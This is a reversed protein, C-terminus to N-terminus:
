KYFQILFSKKNKISYLIINGKINILRNLDKDFIKYYLYDVNENLFSVRRVNFLVSLSDESLFWGFAHQLIDSDKPALVNLSKCDFFNSILNEEYAEDVFFIFNDSKVLKELLDIQYTVPKEIIIKPSNLSKNLFSCVIDTQEQIPLVAIIIYKFWEFFHNSNYRINEFREIKEEFFNEKDEWSRNSLFVNYKLVNKFFNYYKKWQRWTWVILVGNNMIYISIIYLDLIM